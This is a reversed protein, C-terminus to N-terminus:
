ISQSLDIAGWWKQLDITPVAIAQPLTSNFLAVIVVLAIWKRWSFVPSVPKEKRNGSVTQSVVSGGVFSSAHVIRRVSRM